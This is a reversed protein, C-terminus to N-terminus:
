DNDIGLNNLITQVVREQEDNETDLENVLFDVLDSELLFDKSIATPKGLNVNESVILLIRLPIKSEEFSPDLM